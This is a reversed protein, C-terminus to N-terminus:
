DGGEQAVKQVFNQNVDEGSKSEIRSPQSERSQRAIYEKLIKLQGSKKRPQAKLKALNELDFRRSRVLRSEELAHDSYVKNPKYLAHKALYNYFEGGSQSLSASRATKHRFDNILKDASILFDPSIDIIRNKVTQFMKVVAAKRREARLIPLIDLPDSGLEARTAQAEPSDSLIGLPDKPPEKQAEHRMVENM